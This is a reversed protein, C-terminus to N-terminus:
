AAVFRVSGFSAVSDVVVAAFVFTMAVFYLRDLSV